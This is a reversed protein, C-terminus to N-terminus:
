PFLGIRADSRIRETSRLTRREHRRRGLTSITVPSVPRPQAQQSHRTYM